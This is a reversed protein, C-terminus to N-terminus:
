AIVGAGIFDLYTEVYDIFLNQETSNLYSGSFFMAFQTTSYNTATGTDNRAGVYINVNPVGNSNVTHTNVTKNSNSYFETANTRSFIIAGVPMAVSFSSGVANNLRSFSTAFVAYSTGNAGTLGNFTTRHYLGTCASDQLFKNGGTSPNYGSNIYSSTGNGTIGRDAELTPSNVLTANFTGPSKWNVVADAATPAAYMQLVDLKAWIGATKLSKILVDIQKKRALSYTGTLASLLTKTEPQYTYFKGGSNVGLGLDLKLGV